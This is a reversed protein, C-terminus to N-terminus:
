IHVVWGMPAGFTCPELIAKEAGPGSLSFAPEVPVSLLTHLYPLCPVRSLFLLFLCLSRTVQQSPKGNLTPHLLDVGDIASSIIRFVLETHWLHYILIILFIPEPFSTACICFCLYFIM